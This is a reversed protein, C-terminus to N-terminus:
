GRRPDRDLATRLARLPPLLDAARLDARRALETLDAATFAVAEERRARGADTLFVRKARADEPDPELRVLGRAELRQLTNTMTAKTLQFARALQGPTKGDGLRVLHNLVAFHPLRLGDPQAREFRNRALQEIIGIENLLAFLAPDQESM